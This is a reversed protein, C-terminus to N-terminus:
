LIKINEKRFFFNQGDAYRDRKPKRKIAVTNKAVHIEVPEINETKQWDINGSEDKALEGILTGDSITATGLTAEYIEGRDFFAGNTSCDNLIEFRVAESAIRHTWGAKKGISQWQKKSLIIKM